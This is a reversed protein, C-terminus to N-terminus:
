KRISKHQNTMNVKKLRITSLSCVFFNIRIGVQKNLKQIETDKENIKEDQKRRYNSYDENLHFKEDSLRIIEQRQEEEYHKSLLYKENVNDRDDKLDKLKAATKDDLEKM